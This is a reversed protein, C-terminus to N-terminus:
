DFVFERLEERSLNRRVVPICPPELVPPRLPIQSRVYLDHLVVLVPKELIIEIGGPTRGACPKDRDRCFIGVKGEVELIFLASTVELPVDLDHVALGDLFFFAGVGATIKAASPTASTCRLLLPALFLLWSPSRLHGFGLLDGFALARDPEDHRVLMRVM